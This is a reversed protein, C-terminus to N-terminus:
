YTPGNLQELKQVAFSGITRCVWDLNDFNPIQLNNGSAYWRINENPLKEHTLRLKDVASGLVPVDLEPKTTTVFHRHPSIIKFQLEGEDQRSITTHNEETNLIIRRMTMNHKDFNGIQIIDQRMPVGLNLNGEPLEGLEPLSFPLLIPQQFESM